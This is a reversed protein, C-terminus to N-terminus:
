TWWEKDNKGSQSQHINCHERAECAMCSFTVIQSRGKSDEMQGFDSLLWISIIFNTDFTSLIPTPPSPDLPIYSHFCASHLRIGRNNRVIPIVDHWPGSELKACWRSFTWSMNINHEMGKTSDLHNVQKHCSLPKVKWSGWYYPLSHELLTLVVFYQIISYMSWAGALKWVWSCSMLGNSARWCYWASRRAAQPM